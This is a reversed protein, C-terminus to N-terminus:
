ENARRRIIFITSVIIFIIMVIWPFLYGGKRYITDKIQVPFDYTKKGIDFSAEGRRGKLIELVKGKYSIFGSIGTNASRVIPIGNEVARFVSAQLHQYPAGTKGFWADNTIVILFKAGMNVFQRAIKPFVDEFCILTGFSVKKEPFDFLVFEDGASFESVGFSYAIPALWGLIMKLPVYEGFPVLQLKDYRDILTGQKDILYASNFITEKNKWHPAGLLIPVELEKAIQSIKESSADRNFYGPFAAEPWVVLDPDDFIALRTLKEHIELVKEKAMPEWKLSQPINPQIVSIRLLDVPKKPTRLNNEGYFLLGVLVILATLLFGLRKILVKKECVVYYFCANVFVILFSLGYTGFVNSFQIIPLYNSQSYALVNWGTGLIPMEARLFEFAIWVLAIWLAGLFHNKIKKGLFIFGAFGLFFISELITLLVWAITAVHILWHMSVSFFVIGMVFGLGCVRAFSQAHKIAFLFPILAIWALFSLNMLPFSIALLIGSLITLIMQNKM